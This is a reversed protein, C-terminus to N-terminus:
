TCVLNMHQKRKSDDTNLKEIVSVSLLFMCWQWSTVKVEMKCKYDLVSSNAKKDKYFVSSKKDMYLSFEPIAKKPIM